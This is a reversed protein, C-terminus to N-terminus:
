KAVCGAYANVYGAGYVPDRGKKGEDTASNALRTKLEGLSIGPHSQKIIAAVAAAAPAAM